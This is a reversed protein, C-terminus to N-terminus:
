WMAQAKGPSLMCAFLLLSLARLVFHSPALAKAHMHCSAGSCRVHMNRAKAAEVIHAKLDGMFNDAAGAQPFERDVVGLFIQALFLHYHTRTHLGTHTCQHANELLNNLLVHTHTRVRM